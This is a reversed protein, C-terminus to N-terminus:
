NWIKNNIIKDILSKSVKYREALSKRSEGKSYLIRIEDVDKRKLKSAANEEGIKVGGSKKIVLQYLGRRKLRGSVASFNVGLLKSVQSISLENCMRILSDNDPWVIKLRTDFQPDHRKDYSESLKRNIKVHPCIGFNLQKGLNCNFCLVQLDDRKESKKLRLYFSNTSSNSKRDISGDNNIHDITLFLIETEGCCNCKGGYKEIVQHKLLLRYQNVKETNNKVYRSNISSKNKLCEECGLKSKISPKSGCYVCFGESKRKSWLNRRSNSRSM